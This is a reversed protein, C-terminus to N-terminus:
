ANVLPQAGGVIDNRGDAQDATKGAAAVPVSSNCTPTGLKPGLTRGEVPSPSATGTAKAREDVPAPALRLAPLANLAGAVDLLRPDTYVNATLEPKSHRMAAQATRLSVGGRSLHTGFTTRVAHVDVTRGRDDRKPIDAAVMDRDLIKVLAVPVDFVPESAPLRMPVPEGIRLRADAQRDALRTALWERLDDALDARLPVESGQRNKEDAAELVVYPHTADLDLQGVTLSALENRRLGTLALTKYILARERGRRELGAIFDPRKVLSRRGREAAEAVTAFTLPARRWNTRKRPSGAAPEAKEVERGFDALPRLRAVTLLRVLEDETLARRTRRRDAREDAKGIDDFPNTVMRGNERCWEAFAAAASLYTNATRASMGEQQRNALWAELVDRRLDALRGFGCEIRLRGLQREVNKVHAPSARRGLALLYAEAHGGIPIAAHGAAADQAPTIVNAKVLEARGRLGGLVSEAADKTRCGTGVKRVVGSGDRYKAVHTTTTLVVRDSGDRGTTM